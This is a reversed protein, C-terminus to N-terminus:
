HCAGDKRAARPECFPQVGANALQDKLLAKRRVFDWFVREILALEKCTLRYERRLSRIDSSAQSGGPYINSTTESVRCKAAGRYIGPRRVDPDPPGTDAEQPASM